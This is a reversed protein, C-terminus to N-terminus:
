AAAADKIRALLDTPHIPKALVEFDHGQQRAAELLDATQVQGSLLLVKCTPCLEKLQIVLDIGSLGPMVVDAIVLDPKVARAAELAELPNVFSRVEYGNLELVATTTSAIIEEDDVVFITSILEPVVRGLRTNALLPKRNSPNYVVPAPRFPIVKGGALRKVTGFRELVELLGLMALWAKQDDDMIRPNYFEQRLIATSWIKDAADYRPRHRARLVDPKMLVIFCCKSVPPLNQQRRYRRDACWPAESGLNLLFRKFLSISRVVSHSKV